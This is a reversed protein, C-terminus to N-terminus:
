SNNNSHRQSTQQETGIDILEAVATENRLKVADDSSKLQLLFLETVEPTGDVLGFIEVTTTSAISLEDGDEFDDGVASISAYNNYHFSVRFHLSLLSM